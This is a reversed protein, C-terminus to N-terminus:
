DTNDMSLHILNTVSQNPIDKILYPNTIGLIRHTDSGIPAKGKSIRLVGLSALFAALKMILVFNM